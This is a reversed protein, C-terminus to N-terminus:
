LNGSLRTPFSDAQLAPPGPEIGPHSLDRCFPYAVWQLTRPSGKHSLQYLIWRCHTLVPNSGQTPFIGQPLSLSGVGIDQGSCNWPSCLGLPQLSDSMVSCSERESGEKSIDIETNKINQQVVISNKDMNTYTQM